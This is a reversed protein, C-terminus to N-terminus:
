SKESGELEVLAKLNELSDELNKVNMKEVFLRDIIKGMGGGPMQYDFKMTFRTGGDVPELIEEYNGTMMGEMKLCTSGLNFSLFTQLQFYCHM